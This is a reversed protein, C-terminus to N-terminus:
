IEQEDAPELLRRLLGMMHFAATGGASDVEAVRDFNWRDFAEVLSFAAATLLSKPLDKRVAGVAQGREITNATYARYQDFANAVHGERWREPHDLLGRILAALRPHHSTFDMAVQLEMEWRRWFDERPTLEAIAEMMRDIADRLVTGYLDTKGDFYYYMAGKSLGAQEIIRNYSAADFGREAFEHAAVELIRKQKEPEIRYYRSRPM